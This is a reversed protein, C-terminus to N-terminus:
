KNDRYRDFADIARVLEDTRRSLLRRQNYGSAEIMYTIAARAIHDPHQDYRDSPENQWGVRNCAKDVAEMLPTKPSLAITRILAKLSSAADHRYNIEDPSRSCRLLNIYLDGLHGVFAYEKTAEDFLADNDEHFSRDRTM